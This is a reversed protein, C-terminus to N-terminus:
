DTIMEKNNKTGVQKCNERELGRDEEECLVFVTVTMCLFMSVSLHHHRNATGKKNSIELYLRYGCQRCKISASVGDIQSFRSMEM